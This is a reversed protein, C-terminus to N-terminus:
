ELNGEILQGVAMLNAASALLPLLVREPDLMVKAATAMTAVGPADGLRVFLAGMLLFYGPRAAEELVEPDVKSLVAKAELTRRLRLLGAPIAWLVPLLLGGGMYSPTGAMGAVVLPMAM